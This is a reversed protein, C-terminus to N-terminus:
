SPKAMGARPRDPHSPDLAAPDEDGFGGTILHGDGELGRALVQCTNIRVSHQPITAESESNILFM